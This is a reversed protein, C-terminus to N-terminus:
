RCCSLAPMYRIGAGMGALIKAFCDLMGSMPKLLAGSAGLCIGLLLGLMREDEWGQIPERVIGANCSAHHDHCFYSPHTGSDSTHGRHM